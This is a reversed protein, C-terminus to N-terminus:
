LSDTKVSERWWKEIGKISQERAEEVPIFLGAKYEVDSEALMQECAEDSIGDLLDGMDNKSKEIKLSEVFSLGEVMKLFLNANLSNDINVTIKQM